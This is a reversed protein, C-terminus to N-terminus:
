LALAEEVAEQPIKGLLASKTTRAQTGSLRDSLFTLLTGFAKKSCCHFIRKWLTTYWLRDPDGKIEGTLDESVCIVSSPMPIDLSQMVHNLSTVRRVKKSVIDEESTGKPVTLTIVARSWVDNKYFRKIMQFTDFM